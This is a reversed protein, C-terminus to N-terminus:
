ENTGASAEETPAQVALVFEADSNDGARKCDLLRDNVLNDRIKMYVGIAADDYNTM